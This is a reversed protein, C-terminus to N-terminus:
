IGYEDMSQKEYKSGRVYEILTDYFFRAHAEITEDLYYNISRSHGQDQTAVIPYKKLWSTRTGPKLSVLHKLMSNSYDAFFWNKKIDISSSVNRIKELIELFREKDGYLAVLLKIGIDICQNRGDIFPDKLYIGKRVEVFSHNIPKYLQRLNMARIAFARGLIEEILNKVIGDKSLAGELEPDEYKINQILYPIREAIARENDFLYPRVTFFKDFYGWFETQAGYKYHFASQLNRIDAVVIIHDFGFKNDEDGEMHASLVNLIRFIHNPDVRDFDDLILVSKKETKLEAIKTRLLHSLYDTAITDVNERVEKFFKEVTQKDGALYKKKFEQFEKDISLLENLPRGLKSLLQFFPDPSLALTSEGLKITSQLFRNMSAREKFFASFLSVWCSIGKIEGGQFAAPYKKFLEVLIDYKLLEVINENSAIQYRVPFLHYADYKDKHEEFFKQLFFTKGIGFRGSFFIRKNNNIELFCEFDGKPKDISILNDREESM